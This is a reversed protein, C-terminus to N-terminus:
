SRRRPWRRHSRQQGSASPGSFILDEHEEVLELRSRDCWGAGRAGAAPTYAIAITGSNSAVTEEPGDVAGVENFSSTLVDTFKIKLYELIRLAARACAVGDAAM